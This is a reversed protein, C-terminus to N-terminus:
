ERWCVRKDFQNYCKWKRDTLINGNNVICEIDSVARELFLIVVFIQCLITAFANFDVQFYYKALGAMEMM